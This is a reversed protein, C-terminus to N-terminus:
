DVNSKAHLESFFSRWGGSFLLHVVLPTGKTKRLFLVDEAEKLMASEPRLGLM